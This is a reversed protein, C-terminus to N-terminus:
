VCRNEQFSEVLNNVLTSKGAGDSGLIVVAKGGYTSIRKSPM